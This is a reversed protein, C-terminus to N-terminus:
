ESMTLQQEIRTLRLSSRHEDLMLDTLQEMANCHDHTANSFEEFSVGLAGYARTEASSDPATARVDNIKSLRDNGVSALVKKTTSVKAKARELAQFLEANRKRQTVYDQRTSM